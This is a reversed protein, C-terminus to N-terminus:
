RGAKSASSIYMSRGWDAYEILLRRRHCIAVNGIM